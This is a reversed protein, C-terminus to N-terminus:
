KGYKEFIGIARNLNDIGGKEMLRKAEKLERNKKQVQDKRKRERTRKRKKAGKRRSINQNISNVQTVANEVKNEALVGYGLFVVGVVISAGCMSQQGSIDEGADRHTSFENM